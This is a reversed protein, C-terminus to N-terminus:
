KLDIFSKIIIFAAEFNQVISAPISLPVFISMPAVRVFSQYRTEDLTLNFRTTKSETAVM